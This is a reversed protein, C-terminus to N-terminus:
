RDADRRRPRGWSAGAYGAGASVASLLTGWAMDMAALSAPWGKIVALNTLDFTAYATLGLVAGRTLAQSWSASALAPMVALYLLGAAYILYFLGAAPLSPQPQLIPGLHRQFEGIAVTTLWIADIVLFTALAAAYGLLLNGRSTM